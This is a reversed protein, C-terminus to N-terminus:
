DQENKAKAKQNRERVHERLIRTAKDLWRVDNAFSLVQATSFWLPAGAPPSGLPALMRHDVLVRIGDKDRINILDATQQMSLRLPHCRMMCVDPIRFEGPGHYTSQEARFV